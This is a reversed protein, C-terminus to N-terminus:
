ARRRHFPEKRSGLADYVRKAAARTGPAGRVAWVRDRAERMALANDVIPAPYHFGVRVGYMQQLMVPMSHPEHVMPAPIARLEPVWEHIFAGAPDHDTAQKVPNYIRIANIGTVGSQMQCQPYHIGPEFDVFHRALWPATLRWDLWLHYSAFSMVMARMRFPLWGTVRVARMCADVLPYGTQGHTWAELRADDDRAPARLSAYAECMTQSDLQPWDELKQMFHCHWRLRTRFSHISARWSQRTSVTMDGNTLTEIRALAAHECTRISLAGLSLYASVRSCEDFARLPTAMAARYDEGRTRLFSRLTARAQREGGLPVTFRHATHVTSQDDSALTEGPRLPEPVTIAPSEIRSPAPLPPDAMREEWADSWGNRSPLRRIVGTQPLEHFPLGQERCWRRVHRDRQYDMWGTTEEHAWLAVIRLPESQTALHTALQRFADPLEGRLIHLAAGREALADRLERLCERTFQQQFAGADAHTQRSPEDVYVALVRGSRAAATLPAHYRIRLDRKFWVLQVDSMCIFRQLARLPERPRGSTCLAALGMRVM